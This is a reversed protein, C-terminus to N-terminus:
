FSPISELYDGKLLEIYYSPNRDSLRSGVLGKLYSPGFTSQESRGDAMVVNFKVPSGSEQARFVSNSFTFMTLASVVEALYEGNGNPQGENKLITMRDIESVVNDYVRSYFKAVEDWVISLQSDLCNDEPASQGTAYAVPLREKCYKQLMGQPGQDLLWGFIPHLLEDLKKFEQNDLHVTMQLTGPAERDEVEGLNMAISSLNWIILFRALDDAKSLPSSEPSSNLYHRIGRKADEFFTIRLLGITARWSQVELLTLDTM